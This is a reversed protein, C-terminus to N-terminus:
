AAGRKRPRVQSAPVGLLCGLVDDTRAGAGLDDLAADRETETTGGWIGVERGLLGAALCSRRVRCGECVFLLDMLERRPVSRAPFWAETDTRDACAARDQWGIDIRNTLARAKVPHLVPSLSLALQTCGSM